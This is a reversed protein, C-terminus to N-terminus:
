REEPAWESVLWRGDPQHLVVVLVPGADTPVGVNARPGDQSLKRPKGTVKTAPVNDPDISELAQVMEPVVYPAAENIWDERSAGTTPRVWRRVFEVAATVAPDKDKAQKKGARDTPATSTRPASDDAAPVQESSPAPEGQAPTPEVTFTPTPPPTWTPAALRTPTDPRDGRIAGVASSAGWALLAAALLTVILHRRSRLPWTWVQRAVAGRGHDTRIPM